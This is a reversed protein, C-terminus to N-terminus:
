PDTSIEHPNNKISVSKQQTNHKKTIRLYENNINDAGTNYRGREKVDMDEYVAENNDYDTEVIGVSLYYLCVDM